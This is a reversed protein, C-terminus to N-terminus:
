KYLNEDFKMKTCTILRCEVRFVCCTASFVNHCRYRNLVTYLLDCFVVISYNMGPWSYQTHKSRFMSNTVKNHFSKEGFMPTNSNKNHFCQWCVKKNVKHFSQMSHKIDHCITPWWVLGGACLPRRAIVCFKGAKCFLCVFFHNWPKLFKWFFQGRFKVGVGMGNLLYKSTIFVIRKFSDQVNKLKSSLHVFIIIFM